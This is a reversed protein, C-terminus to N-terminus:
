VGQSVQRSGCRVGADQRHQCDHQYTKEARCDLLEEEDGVCDVEDLVIPGSGPGFHAGVLAATAHSFGLQRCVVEADMMDWQDGCVTAWAGDLYIEVRGEM